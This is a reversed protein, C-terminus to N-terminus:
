GRPAKKKSLALYKKDIIHMLHGTYVPEQDPLCFLHRQTLLYAVQNSVMLGSILGRYYGSSYNNSAETNERALNQLGQYTLPGSQASACFLLLAAPLFFTTEHPLRKKTILQDYICHKLTSNNVKHYLLAM